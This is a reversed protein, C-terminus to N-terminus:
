FDIEEKYAIFPIIEFLEHPLFVVLNRAKSSLMFFCQRGDRGRGFRVLLLLFLESHLQPFACMELDFCGRPWVM